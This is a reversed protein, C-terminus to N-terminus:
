GNELSFKLEEWKGDLSYAITIEDGERKVTKDRAREFIARLRLYENKQQETYRSPMDSTLFVSGLLANVTALTNKERLTLKCNEDRLFFVDPDSSYARANLERRFLTNNVAQKTSVRERHFLRMFWVDDWDLGVDCSVRCYNVLGFAPMVPVGCGLIEKEGCWSRLLKMARYMRGARSENKNGFPAVGYLFDLKVLDFGWQNLVRDFVKKLYGLVEPNDIDLSYFTSWNSGCCWPSGDVSLFWDPHEKYLGSEKEAVFPALWLGAKFGSSHIEDVMAKLGSPFKKKDRELWDGVKPEWGDDIQFLDGPSFLSKCGELDERITDETIKQYRNYWSSYGAMKKETGSKIGMAKFWGDFVENESGEAFYLEFLPFAGGNHEVGVTDRELKLVEKRSDYLFITYGPIESLSAILSFHNKKRFYCYSFGHSQGKRRGYPVFHYDGYRDFFYKKKLLSPIHDTGRLKGDKKLEPSYTWTQYGNMFLVEDDDMKWELEAKISKITGPPLEERIHVEGSPPISYWGKRVGGTTEASWVLNSM